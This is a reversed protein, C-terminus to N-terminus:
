IRLLPFFFEDLALTVGDGLVGRALVGSAARRARARDKPPLYKM